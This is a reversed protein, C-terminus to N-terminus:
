YAPLRRTVQFAAVAAEVAEEYQAETATFTTGAPTGPDAPNEIVLRDPSEVWQGALFIPRPKSSAVVTM